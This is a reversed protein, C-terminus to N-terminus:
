LSYGREQLFARLKPKARRIRSKVAEPHMSMAEAIESLSQYYYFHRIIIEKDQKKLQELALSLDIQLQQNDFMDNLSHDDALPIGEIDESDMLKLGRLRDKAKSKTIACLYGKLCGDAIKDANMWLTYFVDACCEEIDQPTLLGNAIHSVIHATLPTYKDMVAELAKNDHKRLRRIIEEENM